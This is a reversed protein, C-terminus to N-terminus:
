YVHSKPLVAESVSEKMSLQPGLAIKALTVISNEYNTSNTPHGVRQKFCQQDGSIKFLNSWYFAKLNHDTPIVTFNKLQSDNALDSAHLLAIEKKGQVGNRENINSM